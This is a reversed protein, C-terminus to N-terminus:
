RGKPFLTMLLGFGVVGASVYRGMEWQGAPEELSESVSLGEALPPLDSLRDSCYVFGGIGVILLIAGFNRM